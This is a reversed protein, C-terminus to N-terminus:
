KMGDPEIFKRVPSVVHRNDSESNGDINLLRVPKGMKRLLEVIHDQEIKTYPTMVPGDHIPGDLATNKEPYGAIAVLFRYYEYYQDMGPSAIIGPLSNLVVNPFPAHKKEEFLDNIKM